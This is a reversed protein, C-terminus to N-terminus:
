RDVPISTEGESLKWRGNLNEINRALYSPTKGGSSSKQSTVGFRMRGEFEEFDRDRRLKTRAVFELIRPFEQVCEKRGERYDNIIQHRGGRRVGQSLFGEVV